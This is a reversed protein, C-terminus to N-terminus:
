CGKYVPLFTYFCVIFKSPTLRTGDTVFAESWWRGRGACSPFYARMVYFNEM